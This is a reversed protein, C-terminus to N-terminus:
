APGADDADSGITREPPEPAGRELAEVVLRAASVEVVHVRVGPDLAAGAASAEHDLEPDADLVVKGVPRLATLTHGLAGVRAVLAHRGSAEAMAGASHGEAVGPALVMRGLVPTQPLYRSLLLIGALACLTYLVTNWASSLALQRDMDYQMDFSPGLSAAILGGLVLLVGGLGFWLTGPLIFLEVVILTVGVGVAVMHPVDALGVLYRGFLLLAFCLISGMGPIGFGPAKLEIWALALGAVLLFGAIADLWAAMDESASRALESVQAGSAGIKALLEDRTEALGDAIGLEVAAPGILNLLEGERVVVRVFELREGQELADDYAGRTVLEPVGSRRVEVVEISADVMAEALIGPRGHDNAWARFDARLSSYMKEQLQPDEGLGSVGMPGVIVPAASGIQATPRMYIRECALAVLAGASVAHDNVWAVTSVGADSADGIARAIKWMLDVQGGPTDLEVVLRDGREAASAIARRVISLTGVDLEDEIKFSTVGLTADGSRSSTWEEQGGLAGPLSGLCLLSLLARSTHKTIPVVPAV